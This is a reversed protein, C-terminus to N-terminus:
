LYSTRTLSAYDKGVKVKAKFGEREIVEKIELLVEKGDELSFDLLFSDYVVLVVESKYRNLISNIEILFTVNQRTEENQISYNFLKQPNLSIKSLHLARGTRLITKGTEQYEIWLKDIYKEIEQFFPISKYEKQVGGYIQKFSIAKAEQYEDETLEEKQFYHRGLQTHISEATDFKYGVLKAILALHYAEFDFEVFLDNKPIFAQRSSDEKNLALFNIANFANTPRATLNYLNYSTYITNDKISYPGWTPEYYKDFIAPNIKIGNSEIRSYERALNTNFTTDEEKGIYAKVQDYLCECKEYHKSVPIISNLNPLLSHDTCYHQIIKPTCEFIVHKNEQDLITQNIDVINDHKIFRSTLKQDQCYIKKCGALFAQVEELTLSLTESHNIALIYGSYKDRIYILSVYNLEPHYNDSGLIVKIYCDERLVLRALQESTEVIYFM